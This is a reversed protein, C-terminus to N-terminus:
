GSTFSCIKELMEGAKSKHKKGHSIFESKRIEKSIEDSKLGHFM